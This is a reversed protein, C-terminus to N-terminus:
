PLYLSTYQNLCISKFDKKHSKKTTRIVKDHSLILTQFLNKLSIWAQCIKIKEKERLVTSHLLNAKIKEQRKCVFYSLLNCAFVNKSYIHSKHM